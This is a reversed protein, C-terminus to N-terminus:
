RLARGTEAGHETLITAIADRGFKIAWDLPLSGNKAKANINAGKKILLRVVQANGQRAACHLPTKGFKDQHDVAAGQEILFGVVSSATGLAAAHLVSGGTATEANIDVGAKLHRKIAPLDGQTTAVLLDAISRTTSTTMPQRNFKGATAVAVAAVAAAVM